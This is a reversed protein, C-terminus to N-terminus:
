GVAFHRAEESAYNLPIRRHMTEAFNWIVNQYDKVPDAQKQRHITNSVPIVNSCEYGDIVTKNTSAIMSRQYDVPSTTLVRVSPKKLQHFQGKAPQLRGLADDLEGRLLVPKVYTDKQFMNHTDKTQQQDFHKMESTQKFWNKDIARPYNM